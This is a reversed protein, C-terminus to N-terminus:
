SLERADAKLTVRQQTPSSERRVADPIDSRDKLLYRPYLSAFGALMAEFPM